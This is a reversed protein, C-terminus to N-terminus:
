IRIKTPCYHNFILFPYSFELFVTGIGVVTLIIAPMSYFSNDVSAIAKWISNGNWWGNDLAKAIGSFFYAIGLHIQLVRRYNFDLNKKYKFFNRDISFYKGVPFIVCYFLSMSMFYDYGYNFPSFSRFIILQLLLALIASFRTFIGVLLFVLCIVYLPIAISFFYQLLDHTELFQYFFHLYKFYGSQMYMLEKPIVTQSASFLLELDPFLSALEILAVLSVMIRFFILFPTVDENPVFFKQLSNYLSYVKKSLM